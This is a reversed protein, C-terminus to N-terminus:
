GVHCCIFQLFEYIMSTFLKRNETTDRGITAFLYSERTAFRFDDGTDMNVKRGTSDRKLLFTVSFIM